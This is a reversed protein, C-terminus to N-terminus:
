SLHASMSVASPRCFDAPDFTALDAAVALALSLPLNRTVLCALYQPAM